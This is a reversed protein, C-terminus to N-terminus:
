KVATELRQIAHMKRLMISLMANLELIKKTTELSFTTKTM